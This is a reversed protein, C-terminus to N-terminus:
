ATKGAHKVAVRKGLRLLAFNARYDAKGKRERVEINIRLLRDEM